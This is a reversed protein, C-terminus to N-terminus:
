SSLYVMSAMKWRGRLKVYQAEFRGAEWRRNALNGQLRAMKAATCDDDLPTCLEVEVHFVASAHLRDEGLTVSDQRQSANQRYAGHFDAADQDALLQLIAAKGTATVGSLTLRAHEEFLEAAAQYRQQEILGMFALHLQRIAERGELQRLPDLPGDPGLTAAGVTTAVGAGLAAGSQTFFMRRSTKTNSGSM